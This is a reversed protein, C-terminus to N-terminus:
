IFIILYFQIEILHKFDIPRVFRSATVDCGARGGVADADAPVRVM